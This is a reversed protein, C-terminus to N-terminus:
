GMLSITSLSYEVQAALAYEGMRKRIEKALGAALAPAAQAMSATSDRLLQMLAARRRSKMDEDLQVLLPPLMKQLRAVRETLMQHKAHSGLLEAELKDVPKGTKMAEVVQGEVEARWTTLKALESQSSTLQSELARAQKTEDSAEHAAKARTVADAIRKRAAQATEEGPPLARLLAGLLELPSAPTSQAPITMTATTM